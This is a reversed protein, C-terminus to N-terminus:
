NFLLTKSGDVMSNFQGRNPRFYIQFRPWHSIFLKPLPGLQCIMLLLHCDDTQEQSMCHIPFLAIGTSQELPVGFIREPARLIDPTDSNKSTDDFEFALDSNFMSIIWSEFDVCTNSFTIPYMRATAKNILRFKWSRSIM